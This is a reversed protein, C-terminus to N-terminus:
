SLNNQLQMRNSECSAENFSALNRAPASDLYAETVYVDVACNVFNRLVCM